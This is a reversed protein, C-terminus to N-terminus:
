FWSIEDMSKPIVMNVSIMDILESNLQDASRPSEGLKMNIRGDSVNVFKFHRMELQFSVIGMRGDFHLHCDLVVIEPM